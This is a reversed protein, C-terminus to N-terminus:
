IQRVDVWDGENIETTGVPVTILGNASTLSNIHASGHYEIPYVRGDTEVKVPVLSRRTSKNRRYKKALPLRIVSPEYKHGMMKLLMPKVLLEFQVFSSVPNGPLGFVFQEGKTGFVTPRGPQIAISDIHIKIGLESFVEPVFDYEGMSVGGTLIVVTNNLLARSIFEYTASKADAAIGLYSYEAGAEKVQAMLQWANSNRIKSSGPKESPEVLENGTSIIGTKIRRAVLPNSYGATALVAVHKPAVKTGRPLLVQGQQIDEGQACINNKVTDRDYRIKGHGTVETHEVMIVADAGKPIMAGTMIKACEGNGVYKEPSKGAPITEIITLEKDLDEKRCAFGDVASKNFPPMEMDAIVDEALIRGLAHELRVHESGLTFAKNMIIEYAEEFPIM